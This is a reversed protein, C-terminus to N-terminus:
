GYIERFFESDCEQSETSLISKRNIRMGFPNNLDVVLCVSLVFVEFCKVSCNNDGHDSRAWRNQWIVLNWGRIHVATM